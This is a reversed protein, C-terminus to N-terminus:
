TPTRAVRNRLTGVGGVTIEVVDGDLL